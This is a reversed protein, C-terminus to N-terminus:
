RPGSLLFGVLEALTALLVLAVSGFAMSGWRAPDHLDGRATRLLQLSALPLTCFLGYAVSDHVGAVLLLPVSCYALALAGNHLCATVPIGFRAVLNLKGARVDCNRDPVEVLLLMAFQVFLLPTVGLIQPRTVTGTQVCYGFWPVLAVVVLAAALEGVGRSHLRLPPASYSWALTLISLMLAWDTFGVGLIQLVVMAILSITAFVIATWLAIPQAVEHSQLVRSGGSWPTVVENARDVEYDFYDNAYHTMLQISTVVGQGLAYRRADLVCGSAHAMAAGLGFSAFGGLLFVPRGLRIWARVWRWNHLAASQDNM